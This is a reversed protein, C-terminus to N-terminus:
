EDITTIKMAVICKYEYEVVQQSVQTEFRKDCRDRSMCGDEVDRQCTWDSLKKQNEDMCKFVGDNLDTWCFLRQEECLDNQMPRAIGQLGQECSLDGFNRLAINSIIGSPQGTEENVVNITLTVDAGKVVSLVGNEEIIEQGKQEVKVQGRFQVDDEPPSQVVNRLKREIWAM